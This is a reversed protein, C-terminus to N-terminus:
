PLTASGDARNALRKVIAAELARQCHIYECLTGKLREKTTNGVAAQVTKKRRMDIIRLEFFGTARSTSSGRPFPPTARKRKLQLRKKVAKDSRYFDVQQDYYLGM